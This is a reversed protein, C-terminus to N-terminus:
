STAGEPEPVTEEAAVGLVGAAAILRGAAAALRTGFAGASTVAQYAAGLEGVTALAPHLAQGGAGGPHVLLDLTLQDVLHSGAEITTLWASRAPEAPRAFRRMTATVGNLAAISTYRHLEALLREATRGASQPAQQPDVTRVAHWAVVTVSGLYDHVSRRGRDSTNWRDPRTARMHMAFQARPDPDARLEVATTDPALRSAMILHRLCNRATTLHVRGLAACRHAGYLGAPFVAEPGDRDLRAQLVDLARDVADGLWERSLLLAEGASPLSLPEATAVSTAVPRRSGGSPTIEHRDIWDGSDNRKGHRWEQFVNRAARLAQDPGSLEGRRLAGVMSIIVKSYVDLTLAGLVPDPLLLITRGDPARDLRPVFNSAASRAGRFGNIGSRLRALETAEVTAYLVERQREWEALQLTVLEVPLGSLLVTEAAVAISRPTPALADTARCKGLAADLELLHDRAREVPLGIAEALQVWAAVAWARREPDRGIAAALDGALVNRQRRSGATVTPHAQEIVWEWYQALLLAVPGEPGFRAAATDRDVGLLEARLEWVRCREVATLGSSRKFYERRELLTLQKLIEAARQPSRGSAIGASLRM